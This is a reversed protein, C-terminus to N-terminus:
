GLSSGDFHGMIWGGVNSMATFMNNKGGNIQEQNHYFAHIPSPGIDNLTINIPPVDIRFPENPIRPFRADPKGDNGFITLYPVISGDHDIQTKQEATANSVGDAGPFLGYLHDFSRNEAYIVVINEIRALDGDARTACSATALFSAAVILARAIARHDNM